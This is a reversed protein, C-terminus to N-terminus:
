KYSENENFFSFLMKLLFHKEFCYFFTILHFNSFINNKWKENNTDIVSFKIGNQNNRIAEIEFDIM